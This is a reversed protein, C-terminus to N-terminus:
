TKRGKATRRLASAQPSAARRAGSRRKAAMTLTAARQAAVPTSALASDRLSNVLTGGGVWSPEHRTGRGESRRPLGDAGWPTERGRRPPKLARSRRM